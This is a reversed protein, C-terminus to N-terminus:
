PLRHINLLRLTHPRDPLPHKATYTTRRLPLAHVFQINSYHPLYSVYFPLLYYFFLYTRSSSSRYPPPICAREFVCLVCVRVCPVNYAHMSGVAPGPRCCRTTTNCLADRSPLLASQYFAEYFRGFRGFCTALPSLLVLLLPSLLQLVSVRRGSRSSPQEVYSRLM